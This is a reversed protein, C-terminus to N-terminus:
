TEETAVIYIQVLYIKVNLIPFVGQIDFPIQYSLITKSTKHKTANRPMKKKQHQCKGYKLNLLVLYLFTLIALSRIKRSFKIVNHILVTNSAIIAM